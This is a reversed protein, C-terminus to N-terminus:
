CSGAHANKVDQRPAHGDQRGSRAAGEVAFRANAALWTDNRVAMRHPGRAGLPLLTPKRLKMWHTPIKCMPSNRDSGGTVPFSLVSGNSFHDATLTPPLLDNLGV